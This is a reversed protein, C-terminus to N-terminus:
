GFKILFGVDVDSATLDSDYAAAGHEATAPGTSNPVWLQLKQTTKNYELSYGRASGLAIIRRIRGGPGAMLKQLNLADGGATYSGTFTLKGGLLWWGGALAVIRSSQGSGDPTFAVAV